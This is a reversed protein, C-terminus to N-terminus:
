FVSLLGLTDVAAHNYFMHVTQLRELSDTFFFILFQHLLGSEKGVKYTSRIVTDM